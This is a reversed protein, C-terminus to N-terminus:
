GANKGPSRRWRACGAQQSQAWASTITRTWATCSYNWSARSRRGSRTKANADAVAGSGARPRMCRAGFFAATNGDSQRYAGGFREETVYEGIVQLYRGEADERVVCAPCAAAARARRRARQDGRAPAGTRDPAGPTQAGIRMVEDLVADYLIAVSLANNYRTLQRHARPMARSRPFGEAHDPKDFRCLLSDLFREVDRRLLRCVACGPQSFTELLDYYGFPTPATM